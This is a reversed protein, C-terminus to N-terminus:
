IGFVNTSSSSNNNQANLSDHINIKRSNTLDNMFPSLYRYPLGTYTLYLNNRSRTIAVIFLTKNLNINPSIYYDSNVFPIFVNDFDLGKSSHFTMLTACSSDESFEGYSNGVYKLPFDHQHLYSNLRNYNPKDYRNKEVEWAIENANELAMNAFKIVMNHIPMLIAVTQGVALAKRTEKMIYAVEDEESDAYCIRVQTSQKTMDRKASFINMRPLFSQLAGIITSSLRHIIKLDKTEGKIIQPIRNPAIPSVNYSPVKEYISQNEDSRFLM